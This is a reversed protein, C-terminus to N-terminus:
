SRDSLSRSVVEEEVSFVEKNIGSGSVRPFQSPFGHRSHKKGESPDPCFPV